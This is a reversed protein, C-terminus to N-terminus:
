YILQILREKGFGFRADNMTLGKEIVHYDAIIRSILKSSSNENTVSSYQVYRRFSNLYVLFVGTNLLQPFYKKIKSYM